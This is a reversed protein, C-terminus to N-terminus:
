IASFPGTDMYPGTPFVRVTRIREGHIRSSQVHSLQDDLWVLKVSQEAGAASM